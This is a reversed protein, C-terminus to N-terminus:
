IQSSFYSLIESTVEEAKEQQIFHYGEISVVDLNPVVEKMRGGKVTMEMGCTRYGVDKTVLIFKTPVEIKAGQWPAMLEWNKDLNRYYNLPGTFGNKQIKESFYQLEDESIWELPSPAEELHDIIEMGPPASLNDLKLSFFKKLVTPVEYRAFSAEARGPEQFQCIYFGDGLLKFFNDTPKVSPSWPSYAIGINVLARVRDPRFLCLRWAMYAGWDHGVVFVRSLELQDLLGILDGIIHFVTYASPDDPVDTDGYGRLDPAIARYGNAALATMQHRWSLWLEPFGHLLLVPPASLDGLEAVHMSIGNTSVQRHRFESFRDQNQNQNAM